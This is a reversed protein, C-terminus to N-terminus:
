RPKSERARELAQCVRQVLDPPAAIRRLRDKLAELVSTEFAYERACADCLALHEDVLNLEEAALERDVYDALREFTEQCTLESPRTM